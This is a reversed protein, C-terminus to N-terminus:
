LCSTAMACLSDIAGAAAVCAMCDEETELTECATPLPGLLELSAKLCEIQTATWSPTAACLSICDVIAPTGGDPVPPAICKGEDDLVTGNSCSVRESYSECGATAAGLSLVTLTALCARALNGM